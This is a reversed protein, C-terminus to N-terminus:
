VQPEGPINETPWSSALHELILPNETSADQTEEATKLELGAGWSIGGPFAVLSGRTAGGFSKSTMPDVWFRVTIVM